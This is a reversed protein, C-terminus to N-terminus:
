CVIYVKEDHLCACWCRWSWTFKNKENNSSKDVGEGRCGLVPGQWVTLRGWTLPSRRGCATPPLPSLPSLLPWARGQGPALSLSLSLHSGALPSLPVISARPVASSPLPLNSRLRPPRQPPPPPPLSRRQARGTRKHERAQEQLPVPPLPPPPLRPRPQLRLPPRVPASPTTWTSLLLGPTRSGTLTTTRNPPLAHLFILVDYLFHVWIFVHCAKIADVAVHKICTCRQQPWYRWVLRFQCVEGRSSFWCFCWLWM